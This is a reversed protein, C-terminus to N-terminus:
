RCAEVLTGLSVNIDNVHVFHLASVLTHDSIFLGKFEDPFKVMKSTLTM